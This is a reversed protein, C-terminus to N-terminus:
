FGEPIISENKWNPHEQEILKEKKARTWGKLQKERLIAEEISIYSEVYVLDTTKYRHTFCEITSQSLHEELRRILDNTVGIYLVTRLKNSLLYVVYRKERRRM